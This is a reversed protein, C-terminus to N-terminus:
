GCAGAEAGWLVLGTKYASRVVFLCVVRSGM